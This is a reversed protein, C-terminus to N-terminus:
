AAARSLKPWAFLPADGVCRGGRTLRVILGAEILKDRAKLFRKPTWELSKAFTEKPLFFQDCKWYSRELRYLLLLADGGDGTDLKAFADVPVVLSRSLCFNRGREQYRWASLVCSMAESDSMPLEFHANM